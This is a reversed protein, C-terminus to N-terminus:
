GRYANGRDGHSHSLFIPLWHEPLIVSFIDIVNLIVNHPASNL